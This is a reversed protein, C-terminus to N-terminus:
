EAGGAHEEGANALAHDRGGGADRVASVGAVGDGARLEGGLAEAVIDERSRANSALAHAVHRALAVRALDATTNRRETDVHRAASLQRARLPGHATQQHLPKRAKAEGNSKALREYVPGIAM